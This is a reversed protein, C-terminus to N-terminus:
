RITPRGAPIDAHLGMVADHHESCYLGQEAGDHTGRHIHPEVINGPAFRAKLADIDLVVNFYVWRRCNQSWPQGAYTVQAGQELLYALLPRLHECITAPDFNVPRRDNM